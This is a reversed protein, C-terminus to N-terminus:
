SVDAGSRQEVDEPALPEGFAMSRRLARGILERERGPRMGDAPRLWTLDESTLVHHAHLDRAAVISRRATAAATTEEELVCARPEGLYQEVAAVRRVLEELETPECSLAHDRFDSFDHRLTFHKEIIRAGKAAAIVCAEVGLTHDSYGVTTALERRLVPISALAAAGPPTPYVSVCHLAAFESGAGVVVQQAARMGALDSMGSSVIVPRGSHAAAAILPHINNDGSAIKFADVLPSLWDVAELDFVTCCFGLKLEDALRALEAFGDRSLRFRELQALRSTQDPRVLRPPDIAQLKIAHAGASAAAHVLERAVGLDGEHNNGLEAIIAVTDDTNTTGLKM